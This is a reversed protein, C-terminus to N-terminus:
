VGEVIELGWGLMVIGGFLGDGELVWLRLVWGGYFGGVMFGM